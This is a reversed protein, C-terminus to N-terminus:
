CDGEPGFFTNMVPLHENNLPPQALLILTKFPLWQLNASVPTLFRESTQYHVWNGMSITSKVSYIM